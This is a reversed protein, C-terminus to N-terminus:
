NRGVPLEETESSLPTEVPGKEYLLSLQQNNILYELFIKNNNSKSCRMNKRKIWIVKLIFSLMFLIFFNYHSLSINHGFEHYETCKIGRLKEERRDKGKLIGEKWKEEEWKRGEIKGECQCVSGERERKL